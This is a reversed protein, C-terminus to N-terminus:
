SDSRPIALAKPAIAGDLCRFFAYDDPLKGASSPKRYHQFQNEGRSEKGTLGSAGHQRQKIM